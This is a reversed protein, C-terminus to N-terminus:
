PTIVVAIGTGYSLNGGIGVSLWSGPVMATPTLSV